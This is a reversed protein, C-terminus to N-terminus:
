KIKAELDAVMKQFDERERLLDLDKNKKMHEIDKYGKAVASLLM